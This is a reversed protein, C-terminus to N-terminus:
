VFAIRYLQHQEVLVFARVGLACDHALYAKVRQPNHPALVRRMYPAVGHREPSHAVLASFYNCADVQAERGGVVASRVFARKYQRLCFLHISHRREDVVKKFLRSLAADRKQNKIRKPSLSLWFTPFGERKKFGVEARLKDGVRGRQPLQHSSFKILTHYIEKASAGM